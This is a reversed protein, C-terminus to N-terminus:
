FRSFLLVNPSSSYESRSFCLTRSFPSSFQFPSLPRGTSVGSHRRVKCLSSLWYKPPLPAVRDSSHTLCLVFWVYFPKPFPPLFFCSVLFVLWFVLAVSLSLFCDSTSPPRQAPASHFPSPDHGHSLPPSRILAKVSLVPSVALGFITWLLTHRTSLLLPSPLPWNMNQVCQTQWASPSDPHLHEFPLQFHSDPVGFLPWPQLHLSLLWRWIPYRFGHPQWPNGLFLTTPLSSSFLPCIRISYVWKSYFSM